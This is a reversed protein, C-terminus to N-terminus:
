WCSPFDPQATRPSVQNRSLSTIFTHRNSHFDAFRGDHDCYTLFDSAERRQREQESESEKLWNQRAAELDVRMTKATKRETGGPFKGSVPFLPADSPFNEKTSLWERLQRVVEVHLVQTDQRKRKSYGAAVKATPPEGDLDFSRLSLSGIEGKRYGTWASLVYMMARDPGAISEVATGQQAAEILRSFEEPLLARRDHRRDVKVNVMSLHVLPDDRM